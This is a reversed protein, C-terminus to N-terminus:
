TEKVPVQYALLNGPMWQFGLRHAMALVDLTVGITFVTSINHERLLDEMGALLKRALAPHDRYAPDVWLGELHVVDMAGWTALIQGDKEIVLIVTHDPSPPAVAAFHGIHALRPWEDPPLVRVTYSSDM